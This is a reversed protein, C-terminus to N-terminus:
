SLTIASNEHCSKFHWNNELIIIKKPDPRQYNSLNIIHSFNTIKVSKKFKISLHKLLCDNQQLVTGACIWRSARLSCFMPLVTRIMIKLHLLITNYAGGVKKGRAINLRWHQNNDQHLTHSFLKHINPIKTRSTYKILWYRFHFHHYTAM